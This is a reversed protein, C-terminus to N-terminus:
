ARRLEVMGFVDAQVLSLLITVNDDDDDATWESYGRRDDDANGDNVNYIYYRQDSAAQM